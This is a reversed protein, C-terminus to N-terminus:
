YSADGRGLLLGESKAVKHGLLLSQQPRSNSYGLLLGESKAEEHSLLLCRRPSTSPMTMASYFVKQRPKKMASHSADGHGLQLSRRSSVM